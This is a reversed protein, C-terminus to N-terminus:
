EDEWMDPVIYKEKEEDGKYLKKFIKQKPEQYHNKLGLLVKGRQMLYFVIESINNLEVLKYVANEKVRKGNYEIDIKVGFNKLLENIYRMANFQGKLDIRKKSMNFLIKTKSDTFAESKSLANICNEDFEEKKITKTDNIHEWGLLKILKRIIILRGNQEETKHTNGEFFSDDDLLHIYNKITHTKRYYMKLIDQDIMDVGLRLKYMQKEICLKDKETATNKMQKKLLEQFKFADIDEAELIPNLKSKTDIMEKKEEDEEDDFPNSLNYIKYGKQKGLLRLYALFLYQNNNLEEVKNYITNVNYPDLEFIKETYGDRKVYVPKLIVERNEIMGNKVEEYTWFDAHDYDPMDGKYTKFINSTFHRVRSLMQFLSEQPCSKNCLFPYLSDFHKKDFNVGAEFCPSYLLCDLEGWAELVNAADKMKIIDNTTSTYLKIKKEPFTSILEEYVRNLQTASM